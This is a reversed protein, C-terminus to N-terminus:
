ATEDIGIVAIGSSVSADKSIGSIDVGAASLGELLQPGFVDGGVKGVMMSVAGMKAAAVAQNAGKGGAYTIFRSGVVTEGPRPFRPSFSVLDM